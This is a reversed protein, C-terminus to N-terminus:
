RSVEALLERPSPVREGAARLRDTNPHLYPASSSPSAHGLLTQVEDVEGGHDAVNSAFAHRCMHPTLHRELGARECLADILENVANPRMPAGVPDRFLNVLLFDCLAAPPCDAREAAYQNLAQVM